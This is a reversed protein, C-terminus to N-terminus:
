TDLTSLWARLPEEYLHVGKYDRAAHSMDQMMSLLDAIAAPQDQWFGFPVMHTRITFLIHGTAPLKRLTQNEVRLFLDHPVNTQDLTIRASRHPAFYDEGAQLSWNMRSSIPGIQMKNFFRDMATELRETYHPVPEHIAALPKGMKEALVWHAPFALAGAVLHWRQSDGDGQPALLLLDEPLLRAADDLPHRGATRTAGSQNHYHARHAAVMDFVEAGSEESNDLAAFIATPRQAALQAKLAIQRDRLDDDGFLDDLPLWDAEARSRLGMTLKYGLRQWPAGAGASAASRAHSLTITSDSETTTKTM